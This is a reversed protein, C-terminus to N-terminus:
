PAEALVRSQDNFNSITGKEFIEDLPTGNENEFYQTIDGPSGVRDQGTLEQGAVLAVVRKNNTTGGTGNITICDTGSTCVTTGPPSGEGAAYAIYIQEHWENDTFWEPLEGDNIDIDYQISATITGTTDGDNTLISTGTAANYTNTVPGPETTVVQRNDVVTISISTMGGTSKMSEGDDELNLSRTRQSIATPSFIDAGDASNDTFVINITYARTITETYAYQIRTGFQWGTSLSSGRVTNYACPCSSDWVLIWQNEGNVFAYGWDAIVQQPYSNIVENV